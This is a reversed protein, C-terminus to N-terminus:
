NIDPKMIASLNISLISFYVVEEGSGLQKCTTANIKLSKGIRKKLKAASKWRIDVAFNDLDEFIEFVKIEFLNIVNVSASVCM